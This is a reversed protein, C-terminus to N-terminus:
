VEVKDGRLAIVRLPLPSIKDLAADGRRPALPPTPPLPPTNFVFRALPRVGARPPSLPPTRPFRTYTFSLGTWSDYATWRSGEICSFGCEGRSLKLGTLTGAPCSKM